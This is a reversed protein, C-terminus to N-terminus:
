DEIIIKKATKNSIKNDKIITAEDNYVIEKDGNSNLLVLEGDVEKATFFSDNNINNDASNQGEAKIWIDGTVRYVMQGYFLANWAQYTIVANTMLDGTHKGLAKDVADEINPYKFILGFIIHAVDKGEVGTAVREYKSGVEVNRTSLITFDGMRHVCSAGILIISFYLIFKKM